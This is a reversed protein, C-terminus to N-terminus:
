AHAIVDNTAILLAIRGVGSELGDIGTDVEIVTRNGNTAVFLTTQFVGQFVVVAISACEDVIDLEGGAFSPNNLVAGEEGETGSANDKAGGIFSIFLIVSFPFRRLSGKKSGNM